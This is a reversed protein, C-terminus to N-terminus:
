IASLFAVLDSEEDATFDFGLSEEYFKVVDAVTAASGNHFYPARAALARLAPAKFKGVDAFKGTILARGPDTTQVVTGTATETLTYLPQDPQRRTGASVGINFFTGNVNTGVNAQSHCGQCPGGGNPHADSIPRRKTNFLEQGRYIAQYKPSTSTQYADFVDWRASVVAQSELDEPNGRGGDKGLWGVKFDFIQTTYLGTEFDVIEDRTAQDIPTPRQAHGQTAGNAQTALADHLDTGTVRGDWMVTSLFELNTAPLPRRFLSLEAASAYNYPDDVATLTFDAEAPMGIGVRITGRSLLMSYAARRAEFTSVDAAPSNAGDVPRFIPDKGQTFFFRSQNNVASVTWGEGILHCTGCTRGNVGLDKFFGGGLAIKGDVSFTSSFGLPDFLPLHNPLSAHNRRDGAGPTELAATVTDTTGAGTDADTDPPPDCGLLSAAGALVASVMVFVGAIGRRGHNVIGKNARM